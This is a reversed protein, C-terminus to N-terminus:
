VTRSELADAHSAGFDFGASSERYQRSRARGVAGIARAGPLGAVGSGGGFVEEGARASGGDALQDALEAGAIGEVMAAGGFEGTEDASALGADQGRVAIQEGFDGGSEWHFFPLRATVDEDGGRMLAVVWAWRMRRSGSTRARRASSRMATRAMARSAKAMRATALRVEAVFRHLHEFGCAVIRGRGQTAACLQHQGHQHPGVEIRATFSLPWGNGPPRRKM